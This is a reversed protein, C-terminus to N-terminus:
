EDRIITEAFADASGGSQLEDLPIKLGGDGHGDVYVSYPRFGDDTVLCKLPGQGWPDAPVVSLYDPVLQELTEPPQGTELQFARIALECRLLANATRTKKWYRDCNEQLQRFEGPKAL